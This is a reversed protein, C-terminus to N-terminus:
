GPARARPRRGAVAAALQRIEEARLLVAGALYV